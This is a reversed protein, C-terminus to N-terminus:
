VGGSQALPKTQITFHYFSPIKLQKVEERYQEPVDPLLGESVDVGVFQINKFANQSALQKLLENLKDSSDMAGTIKIFVPNRHIVVRELWVGKVYIHSLAEFEPYFGEDAKPSGSLLVGVLPNGSGQELLPQLRQTQQSIMLEISSSMETDHRLQNKQFLFYGWMMVACLIIISLIKEASLFPRRTVFKLLDFNAANSM